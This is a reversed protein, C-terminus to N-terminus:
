SFPRGTSTVEVALAARCCAAALGVIAELDALVAVVPTAILAFGFGSLAQAASAIAVVAFVGVWVWVMWADDCAPSARTTEGISATFARNTSKSPM